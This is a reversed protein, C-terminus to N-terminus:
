LGAVACITRETLLSIYNTDVNRESPARMTLTPRAIFM